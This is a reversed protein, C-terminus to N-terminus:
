GARRVTGTIVGYPEDTAVFVENANERGFPQLNVLLRHRNPMTLTIEAAAPFAALAAEGMAHLTHQVGLSKHGAFTELLAQRIVAYAADWDADNAYQWEATLSTAFIRDDADPLTRFEDRHFDRFASDTTKLLMLDAIGAVVHRGNRTLGASCTRHGSCGRTFAHRHPRVDVKIRQWPDVRISITASEVQSYSDVFHQGLVIAFAEPSTLKHDAALAYVANKMTDTAVVNRNDGATYAAAFDGTLRVDISWEFLDHRDSHRQVKTLRVRSKGYANHVLVTAM